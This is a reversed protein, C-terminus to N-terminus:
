KENCKGHINLGKERCIDAIESAPIAGERLVEFAADTLRVVTSPVGGHVHGADLVFEISDGLSKVASEATLAPPDGSLNASTVRLPIGAMRLIALAVPHDPIRFGEFSLAHGADQRKNVIGARAAHRGPLDVPLVLTLAGPWYRRSLELEVEGLEAGAQEIQFSDSALLTVPKSHARHKALDLRKEAGAERPDAALGYVTDTPFVILSGKRLVAVAERILRQDIRGSRSVSVIRPIKM